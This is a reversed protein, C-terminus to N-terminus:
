YYTITRKIIEVPKVIPRGGMDRKWVKTTQKAWNGREDFEYDFAVIGALINKGVLVNQPAYTRYGLLNGRSDYRYVNKHILYTVGKTIIHSSSEILRGGADYVSVDKNYPSQQVTSSFQVEVRRGDPSYTFSGRKTFTGGLYHESESLRGDAGYKYIVRTGTPLGDAGNLVYSLIKGRSDFTFV